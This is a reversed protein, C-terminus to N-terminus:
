NFAMSDAFVYENDIYYSIFEEENFDCKYFFSTTVIKKNNITIEFEAQSAKNFLVSCKTNLGLSYVKGDIEISNNGLTIENPTTLLHLFYYLGTLYFFPSVFLAAKIKVSESDHLYYTSIMSIISFLVVM